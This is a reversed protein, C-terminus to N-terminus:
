FLIFFTSSLHHEIFIGPLMDAFPPSYYYIFLYIFIIIFQIILYKISIYIQSRVKEFM